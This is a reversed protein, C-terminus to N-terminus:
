AKTRMRTRRGNFWDIALENTTEIPLSAAQRSLEPIIKEAM